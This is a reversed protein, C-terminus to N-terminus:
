NKKKQISVFYLDPVRDKSADFAKLADFFREFNERDNQAMMTEEVKEIFNTAYVVDPNETSKAGRKDDIRTRKPNEPADPVRIKRINNAACMTRLDFLLESYLDILKFGEYVVRLTKHHRVEHPLCIDYLTHCRKINAILKRASKQRRNIVYQREVKTPPTSGLFSVAKSSILFSFIQEVKLLDLPLHFMM